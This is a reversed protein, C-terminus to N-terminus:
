RHQKKLPPHIPTNTYRLKNLSSAWDKVEMFDFQFGPVRFWFSLERLAKKKGTAYHVILRFRPLPLIRLWSTKAAKIHNLPIQFNSKHLKLAYDIAETFGAQRYTDLLNDKQSSAMQSRHLFLLRKNTLILSGVAVLKKNELLYANRPYEKITREKESRDSINM